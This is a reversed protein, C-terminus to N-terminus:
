PSKIAPLMSVDYKPLGKAIEKEWDQQQPTTGNGTDHDYDKQAKERVVHWDKGLKKIDDSLKQFSADILKSTEAQGCGKEKIVTLAKAKLSAKAKQALVNTIDFHGQEHKLLDKLVIIENAKCKPIFSTACEAKSIAKVNDAIQYPNLNVYAKKCDDFFTYNCQDRTYAVITDNAVRKPYSSEKNKFATVCTDALTKCYKEGAAKEQDFHQGCKKSM